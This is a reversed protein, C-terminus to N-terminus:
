LYSIKFSDQRLEWVFSIYCAFDGIVKRDDGLEKRWSADEGSNIMNRSLINCSDIFVNHASRIEEHMSEREERDVSLWKSRLHAYRVANKYLSKKLDIQKSNEIVLYLKHFNKYPQDIETLIQGLSDDDKLKSKETESIERMRKVLSLIKQRKQPKEEDM